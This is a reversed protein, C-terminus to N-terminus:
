DCAKPAPIYGFSPGLRASPIWTIPLLGDGWRLCLNAGEGEILAEIDEDQAAEGSARYISPLMAALDRDDLVAPGVETLLILAGSDDIIAKSLSCIPVGTHTALQGSGDLHLVWPAVELEVYVRQPGNQFFWNGADDHTYNRGIFDALGRHRIVEGQLRWQGRRDLSLWGYCHPVDPWKALAALVANDM